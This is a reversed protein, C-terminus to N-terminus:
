CVIQGRKGKLACRTLLAGAKAASIGRDKAIGFVQKVKDRLPGAEANTVTPAAFTGALMAVILVRKMM